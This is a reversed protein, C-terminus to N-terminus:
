VGCLQELADYIEYEIETDKKFSEGIVRKHKYYIDNIIKNSSKKYKLICVESVGKKIVLEVQKKKFDNRKKNTEQYDKTIFNHIVPFSGFVVIVTFISGLLDEM